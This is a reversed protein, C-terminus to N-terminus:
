KCKKGSVMGMDAMNVTGDKNKKMHDYMAEHHTMFEQKSVMGDHNADVDKMGMGGKHMMPKMPEPKIDPTGGTVSPDQKLEAANAGGTGTSGAGPVGVQAFAVNISSVVIVTSMAIFLKNM